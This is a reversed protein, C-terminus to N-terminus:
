LDLAMQAIESVDKIQKSRLHRILSKAVYDAHAATNALHFPRKAFLPLAMPIFDWDYTISAGTEREVQEWAATLLPALEIANQRAQYAGEPERLWEYLSPNGRHVQELVEEWICLADIAQENTVYENM